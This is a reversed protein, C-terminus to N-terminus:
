KTIITDYVAVAQCWGEVYGGAENGGKELFPQGILEFSSEQFNNIMQNIREQLEVCSYTEECGIIFYSQLKKMNNTLKITKM